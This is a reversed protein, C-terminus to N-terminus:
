STGMAPGARRELEDTLDRIECLTLHLPLVQSWIFPGLGLYGFGPGSVGMVSLFRYAWPHRIPGRHSFWLKIRPFKAEIERYAQWAQDLRATLEADSLKALDGALNISFAMADGGAFWHSGAAVRGTCGCQLVIILIDRAGRTGSM